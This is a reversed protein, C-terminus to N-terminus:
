GSREACKFFLIALPPLTLSLTFDFKGYFSAPMAEVGGWNGLNSGGYDQADSSLVEKWLGDFPVGVKYHYRPVPTFNGVVLIPSGGSRSWRLFSVVSKEADHFDIWQFGEQVFDQDHLAPESRYLRNLDQVWRKIGQHSKSGLLHWDLSEDHNWERWQGFEGGMFLLKKGPHGYLFGLLLRLNAFKQWSDGPMKALLSGKGHVVEDHSLPLIFNEYFAYWIGFTLQNHNYKRFLADKSFYDLTDHMWGM